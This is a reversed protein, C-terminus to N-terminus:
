SEAPASCSVARLAAIVRQSVFKVNARQTGVCDLLKLGENQRFRLIAPPTWSGSTLAIDNGGLVDGIEEARFAGRTFGEGLYHTTEFDM